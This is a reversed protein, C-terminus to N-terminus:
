PNLNCMPDFRPVSVFFELQILRTQNIDTKTGSEFKKLEAKYLIDQAVNYIYLKFPGHYYYMWDIM